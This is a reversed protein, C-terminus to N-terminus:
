KKSLWRRVPKDYAYLFVTALVISGFFTAVAMPWVNAMTCTVNPFGHYRYFMYMLPYHIIYLPYSIEGLFTLSNLTFASHRIKDACGACAATWIIIPFMVYTLLIIYYGNQWTLHPDGVFPMALLVLLVSSCAGFIPLLYKPHESEAKRKMFIRCLLMGLSYPFLMRLLGWWFGGAVFSWGEGLYATDLVHWGLVVGCILTVLALARTPLKRLLLAYIVNGIYEFFLSWQPGNLPFIEGNGRVDAGWGPFVPLMVLTMFFALALNGATAPNGEWSTGGDILFCALGIVAGAVVMPHLRILRRKAFTGFGMTKRDDYAYAIVFGSLLFFFDVALYGHDCVQTYIGTGEAIEYGFCEFCHYYLVILAAIGRLADLLLLHPKSQM